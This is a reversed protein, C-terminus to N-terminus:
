SLYEVLLYSAIVDMVPLPGDLAAMGIAAALALGSIIPTEDWTMTVQNNEIKMTKPILATAHEMWAEKYQNMRGVRISM